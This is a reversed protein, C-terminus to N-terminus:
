LPRNKLTWPWFPRLRGTLGFRLVLFLVYGAPVLLLTRAALDARDENQRITTYAHSGAGRMTQAMSCKAPENEARCERELSEVNASNTRIYEQQSVVGRLSIAATGIGGVLLMLSAIVYLRFFKTETTTSESM